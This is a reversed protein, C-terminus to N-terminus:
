RDATSRGNRSEIRSRLETAFGPDAELRREILMDMCGMAVLYAPCDCAQDGHIWCADLRDTM